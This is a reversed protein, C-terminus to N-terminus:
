SKIQQLDRAPDKLGFEPAYRKVLAMAPDQPRIPMGLAHSASLIQGNEPGIFSVKGTQPNVQREIGNPGQAAASPMSVGSFLMTIVVVISLVHYLRRHTSLSTEGPSLKGGQM